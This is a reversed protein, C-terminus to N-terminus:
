KKWALVLLWEGTGLFWEWPVLLWCGAGLVWCYFALLQHNM